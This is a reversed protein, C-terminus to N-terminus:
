KISVIASEPCGEAEMVMKKASDLNMASVKIRAKGNDHKVTVVYNHFLTTQAVEFIERKTDDTNYSQFVIGGGFQKNHFKRGGIKKAKVLALNYMESIKGRLEQHELESLLSLFHCVYRPNGNTDSNVRTLTIYDYKKM